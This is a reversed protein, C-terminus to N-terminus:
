LQVWEGSEHSAVMADLVAAAAVADDLTALETAEGAIARVFGRAEVVKTDDYGMAIGAGPQFAAYEGDGPESFVTSTPQGAYHDGASVQLEGPRRFDWRVLGKTGHVEFAYNNQEGVAARDAECVSLVGSAMRLIAVVYDENEVEGFSLGPEDVDLVAYHGQAQNSSDAVPRKPIHIATQAMVGTVDGLVFRLLDVGHSALDGLAGHGGRDVAYRWSLPSGPHAAYDTLLQVRAHTPVGLAGSEVVRRARAVAPVHRYNFGVCGVVGSAHVADRVAAADAVTLGVPKEIWLHKGAEAVAVGIERHLFNPATVSVAAVDPDALLDHWDAYATAGHARSFAEGAAASSDAVAAVEPRVALDPWHQPLRQYARAHVHGMWGAGIVGVKLTEM